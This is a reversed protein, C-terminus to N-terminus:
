DKVKINSNVKCSLNIIFEIISYYNYLTLKDLPNKYDLDLIYGTFLKLYFSNENLVIQTKVKNKSYMKVISNLVDNTFIKNILEKDESEIKFLEKINSTDIVNNDDNTNKLMGLTDINLKLSTKLKNEFSFYVFLGRFTENKTRPGSGVTGSLNVMEISVNDFCKGFIYDKHWSVDEYLYPLFEIERYKKLFTSDAEKRYELNNDVVKVLKSIIEQKFFNALKEKKTMVETMYYMGFGVCFIVAVIGLIFLIKNYYVVGTFIALVVVIKYMLVEKKKLKIIENKNTELTKGYELCIKEYFNNFKEPLKEEM